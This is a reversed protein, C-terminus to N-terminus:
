IESTLQFASWAAKNIEDKDQSLFSEQLPYPAKSMALTCYRSNFGSEDYPEPHADPQYRSYCPTMGRYYFIENVFEAKTLFHYKGDTWLGDLTCPFQKDPVQRVRLETLVETKSRGM